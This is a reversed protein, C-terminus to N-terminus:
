FGCVSTALVVIEWDGSRGITGLIKDATVNGLIIDIDQSTGPQSGQGM